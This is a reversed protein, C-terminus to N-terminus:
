RATKAAEQNGMSLYKNDLPELVRNFWAEFGEGDGHVEATEPPSDLATALVRFDEVPSAHLSREGDCLKDFYGKGSTPAPTLFFQGTHLNYTVSSQVEGKQELAATNGPFLTATLTEIGPSAGASNTAAKNTTSGGAAGLKPNNTLTGGLGFSSDNYTTLRELTISIQLKSSTSGNRVSTTQTTTNETRVRRQQLRRSYRAFM